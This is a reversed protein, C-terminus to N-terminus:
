SSYLMDAFAECWKALAVQHINDGLMALEDSSSMPLYAGDRHTYKAKLLLLYILRPPIAADALSLTNALSQPQNAVRLGCAIAKHM